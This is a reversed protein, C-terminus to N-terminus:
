HEVVAMLYVLLLFTVFCLSLNNCYYGCACHLSITLNIAFICLFKSKVTVGEDTSCQVTLLVIFLELVRSPLWFFVFILAFAMLQYSCFYFCDDKDMDFFCIRM